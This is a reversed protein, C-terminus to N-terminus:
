RSSFIAASDEPNRVRRPESSSSARVVPLAVDLRDPVNRVMSPLPRTRRSRPSRPRMVFRFAAEHTSRSKHQEFEPLRLRRKRRWWGLLSAGAFRLPTRGLRRTLFTTRALSFVTWIQPITQLHYPLSEGGGEAILTAGSGITHVTTIASQLNGYVAGNNSYDGNLTLRETLTGGLPSGTV